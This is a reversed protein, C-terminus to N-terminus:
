PVQMDSILQGSLALPALTEWEECQIRLLVGEVVVLPAGSADFVQQRFAIDRGSAEDESVVRMGDALVTESRWSTWLWPEGTLTGSGQGGEFAFTFRDGEVTAALVREAPPEENPADYEVVEEVIRSAAPDVTRRVMVGGSGLSSGDPASIHSMGRYCLTGTPPLPATPPPATEPAVTTATTCGVLSLLGISRLLTNM